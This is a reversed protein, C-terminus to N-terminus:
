RSSSVSRKGTRTMNTNKTKAKRLLKFYKNHRGVNHVEQDFYESINIAESAKVMSEHMNGVVSKTRLLEHNAITRYRRQAQTM